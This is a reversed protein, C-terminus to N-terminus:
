VLISLSGAVLGLPTKMQFISTRPYSKSGCHKTPAYLVSFSHFSILITYYRSSPQTVKNTRQLHLLDNLPLLHLVNDLFIEIPIDTLLMTLKLQLNLNHNLPLVLRTDDNIRDRPAILYSLGLSRQTYLHIM